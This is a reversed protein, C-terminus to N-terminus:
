NFSGVGRFMRRWRLKGDFWGRDKDLSLWVFLAKGVIHDEPVFGWCRSDASNHRNDGMMWYYDMGFTYSDSEVGNIYIKGDKVDLTNGEYAVIPREYIAINDLTLKVSEGRKPIWVPGYNDVTWGRNGNLPYIGFTSNQNAIEISRCLRSDAKLANCAEDTLPLQGVMVPKGAQRLSDVLARSLGLALRVNETISQPYLAQMAMLDEKSIGLERRKEEPLPRTLVLNYNYQVNTQKLLKEGDIYLVKDKIELVEGPLGVCRKVYNERRDVPRHLLEGFEEPYSKIYELGDNYIKKYLPYAEGAQMTDIGSLQPNLELGYAYCMTHVDIVAPNTTAVDGAPYNFVVIDGREIPEIGAVREYGWQVADIYSKGGVVPMTHQTLPMSLPTQPKRPGYNLKSVFLYDGVLLTKELSSTPIVYNQFFYIHVFYVAVLAFVIADVWSMVRRATGNKLNKWWGWPIFRTTYCDIIFPIVLVGMWSKVWILFAIYLALYVGMKILAKRTTKVSRGLFRFNLDM